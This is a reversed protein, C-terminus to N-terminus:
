GAEETEYASIGVSADDVPKCTFQFTPVQCHPQVPVVYLRSGAPSVGYLLCNTAPLEKQGAERGRESLVPAFIKILVALPPPTMELSVQAVALDPIVLYGLV